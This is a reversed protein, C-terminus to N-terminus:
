PLAARSMTVAGNQPTTMAFFASIPVSALGPILRKVSPSAEVSMMLVSMLLSM